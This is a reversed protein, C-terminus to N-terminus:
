EVSELFIRQEFGGRHAAKERRVHELEEPTYGLDAAAALIVEMLDALEELNKEKHFEALEEDLKEHLKRRYEDRSLVRIKCIKGQSQIIAPIKDRVLKNYKM